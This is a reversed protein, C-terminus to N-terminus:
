VDFAEACRIDLYIMWLRELGGQDTLARAIGDVAILGVMIEGEALYCSCSQDSGVM